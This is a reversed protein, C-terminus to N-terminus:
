KILSSKGNKGDPDFFWHIARAHPKQETWGLVTLQWSLPNFEIIEVDKGNYLKPFSLPGKL